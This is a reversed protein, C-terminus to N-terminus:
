NIVETSKVYTFQETFQKLLCLVGLLLVLTDYGLSSFEEILSKDATPFIFRLTLFLLSILALFIISGFYYIFVAKTYKPNSLEKKQKQSIKTVDSLSVFGMMIGAIFLGTGTIQVVNEAHYIFNYPLYLLLWVFFLWRLHSLMHFVKNMNM